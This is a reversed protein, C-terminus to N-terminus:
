FVLFACVGCVCVCVDIFLNRSLLRDIYLDPPDSRISLSVALTRPIGTTGTGNCSSSSAVVIHLKYPKYPLLPPSVCGVFTSKL